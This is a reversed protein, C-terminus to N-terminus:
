QLKHSLKACIHAPLRVSARSSDLSIVASASADLSTGVFTRPRYVWAWTSAYQPALAAWAMAPAHM